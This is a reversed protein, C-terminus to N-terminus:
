KKLLQHLASFGGLQHVAFLGGGLGVLGGAVYARHAPAQAQLYAARVDQLIEASPQNNNWTKVKQEDLATRVSHSTQGLQGIYTDKDSCTIPDCLVSRIVDEFFLKKDDIFRDHQEIAQTTIQEEIDASPSYLRWLGKCAFGFGVTAALGALFARKHADLDKIYPIKYIGYLLAAPLIGVRIFKNWFGRPLPKKWEKNCQVINLLDDVSRQLQSEQRWTLKNIWTEGVRFRKEVKATEVMTYQNNEAFRIQVTGVDGLGHPGSNANSTSAGSVHGVMVILSLILAKVGQYSFLM